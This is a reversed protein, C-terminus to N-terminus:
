RRSLGVARSMSVATVTALVLTWVGIVLLGTAPLDGGYMTQM